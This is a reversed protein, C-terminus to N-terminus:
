ASCRTRGDARRLEIDDLLNQFRLAKGDCMTWAHLVPVRINEWSGRPRCHMSGTVSIVGRRATLRRPEVRMVEWAPPLGFLDNSTLENASLFRPKARPALRCWMGGDEGEGHEFLALAEAPFGPGLALYASRLREAADDSVENLTEFPKGM